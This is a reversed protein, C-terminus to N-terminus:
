RAQKLTRLAVDSKLAKNICASLKREDMYGRVYDVIKGDPAIIVTTPFLTIKLDQALQSDPAIELRAPIFSSRLKSIITRNSLADGEMKKCYVCDESTLFLFVPRSSDTGQERAHRYSKVWELNSAQPATAIPDSNEAMLPSLITGLIISAFTLRATHFM